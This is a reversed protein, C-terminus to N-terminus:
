KVASLIQSDASQTVGNNAYLTAMTEAVLKKKEGRKAKDSILKEYDSVSVSGVATLFETLNVGLPEVCKWAAIPDTISRTGTRSKVEYGPLEIGETIAMTRAKFQVGDAWKKLVPIMDLMKAIVVPDDIESAHINKPLNLEPAYRHAVEAAVGTIKPCRAVNACFRCVGNDANLMDVPAKGADWCAHAKAANALITEIDKTLTPIDERTFVGHSVEDRQPIIFYFHLTKVEPYRQFVGLTYTKAQWNSQADDVAGRGTKYDAAVALDGQLFLRDCTGFTAESGADITLRIECLDTACDLKHIRQIHSIALRCQNAIYREHENQLATDDETELALHIRTGMISAPNDGTTPQYGPCKNFYKLASPSFRAHAPEESVVTTEITVELEQKMTEPATEPQAVVMSDNKANILSLNAIKQQLTSLITEEVTGAATLVRQLVNSKAGVRDVRGLTQQLEKANYSPSILAIRPFGGHMDHLSVGTGGAATNAVCIRVANDQFQDISKQREKASQGGQIIVCPEKLLGKLAEISDNFNLAVFVSLGAERSEQVMQAILPVKLLEVKQRARLIKVLQIADDGDAESREALAILQAEVEKLIKSIEGKDDFDLPTFDVSCEAFHDGLDERTLKHAISSYLNDNIKVLCEIEDLEFVLQKWQNLKCGNIQAWRYFDVFNHLGLTYGIAKMETPNEFPTASLMLVRYGQTKAAALMLANQSAQAKCKHVEDFIILTGKPLNWKYRSKGTKSLAPNKGGKIKEYNTVFHCKVNQEQFTREWGPIVAKPCIVVPAVGLDRAIEVSVLTKGTGTESSCLATGHTHLAKLLVNKSNQQEPFLTKM